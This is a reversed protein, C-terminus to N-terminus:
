SGDECAVTVRRACESMVHLDSHDAYVHRNWYRHCKVAETAPLARQEAVQVYVTRVAHAEVRADLRNSRTPRARRAAPRIEEHRRHLLGSKKLPQRSAR